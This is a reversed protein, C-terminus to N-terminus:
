CPNEIKCFWCKTDEITNPRTCSKCPIIKAKDPMPKKITLDIPKLGKNLLSAIKLQIKESPVAYGKAWRSIQTESLELEKALASFLEPVIKERLTKWSIIEIKSM